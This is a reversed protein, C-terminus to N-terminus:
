FPCSGFPWPRDGASASRKASGSSSASSTATVPQQLAAATVGHDRVAARDLPFEVTTRGQVVNNYHQSLVEGTALNAGHGRNFAYASIRELSWDAGLSAGLTELFGRRTSRTRRDTLDAFRTLMRTRTTVSEDDSEWISLVLSLMGYDRPVRVRQFTHGISRSEGSDVDRYPRPRTAPYKQASEGSLSVLTAMVFPEDSDSGRDFSSERFAKLRGLAVEFEDYPGTEPDTGEGVKRISGTVDYV